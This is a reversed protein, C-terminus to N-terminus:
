FRNTSLRSQYTDAMTADSHQRIQGRQEMFQMSLRKMDLQYGVNARMLDCYRQISPIVRRWYDNGM